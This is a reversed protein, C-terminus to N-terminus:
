FSQLYKIFQISPFSQFAEDIPNGVNNWIRDYREHAANILKCLNPALKKNIFAPLKHKGAPIYSIPMGYEDIIEELTLMGIDSDSRSDAIAMNLQEKTLMLGLEESVMFDSAPSKCDIKDVVYFDESANAQYWTGFLVNSGDSYIARYVRQGYYKMKVLESANGATTLLIMALLFFLKLSTSKFYFYKLM